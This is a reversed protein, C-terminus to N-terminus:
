TAFKAAEKKCDYPLDPPFCFDPWNGTKRWYSLLPTRAMVQMFRPDQRFDHLAPRFWVDQQLGLDSPRPWRFLIEYLKDNRHFEGMAQILVGLRGPNADKRNVLWSIYPDVKSPNLRAELFKTLGLLNRQQAYPLAKHPDGFRLNFRSDLDQATSSGPWLRQVDEVVKQASDTQGSYALSDFHAARMAPSLPDLKAARASDAVAAGMQGTQLLLQSRQYLIIPNDPDAAAAADALQMRKALESLPVLPIEAVTAEGMRPDLARASRIDERLAREHSTNPEEDWLEGDVLTAEVVLLKKWAAEFRPANAVVQRLASLVPQLDTTSLEAMQGCSILYLKVTAPDLRRQKSDLGEGACGLVHAASFALQQKLDSLSHSANDFDKSWLITGDKPKKLVLNAGGSSPDATSSVEMLLDPKVTAADGSDILQLAPSQTSQLTGLKVSLDRALSQSAPDKAPATVAVTPTSSTSTWSTYAVVAVGILAFAAIVAIAVRWNLSRVAPLTPTTPTATVSGIQGEALTSIDTLFTRLQAVNGRGKWRSLDMTQFQRFGLPPETGDITVPVLRGSDRGAAAEDRVWPSEISNKSWLVVIADAAKLAEEIVKSFQAGGRVHLDWWVQHGAKQLAHAFHRARDVDDRDYSLFVSAM